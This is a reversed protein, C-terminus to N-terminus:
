DNLYGELFQTDLENAAQEDYWDQWQQEDQM